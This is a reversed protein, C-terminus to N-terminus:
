KLKTVHRLRMLRLQPIAQVPMERNSKKKLASPGRKAVCFSLRHRFDDHLKGFRVVIGARLAFESLM